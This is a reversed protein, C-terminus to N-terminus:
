GKALCSEALATAPDHQVFPTCLKTTLHTHLHLTPCDRLPYPHGTLWKVSHEGCSCPRAISAKSSSIHLMSHRVRLLYQDCSLWTSTCVGFAFVLVERPACHTLSRTIDSCHSLNSNHDLNLGQGPSKWM